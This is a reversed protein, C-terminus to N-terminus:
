DLLLVIGNETFDNFYRGTFHYWMNSYGGRANFPTPAAWTSGVNYGMAEEDFMIGFVNELEVANEPSTLTGAAQLYIPKAQIEDPNDIAQWFMVPEYDVLRLFENHFVGSRVESDIRNVAPKYLYVKQRRKPTHRSIEKGTVNIHYKQSRETMMDSLTEIEAAAWKIFGPWNEPQQITESTFTEGTVGNYRTVLHIVNGSDGAYKGTIFNAIIMRAISEKVQEIQDQANSTVMSLFRGFEGPGSFASNLQDRFITYHRSYVNAGYYNTQLINPKKVVYMDVSEGDVLELRDDEEWDSDAINLKRVINGWVQSGMELGRFKAEYPRISFVTRSLVQSIANLLPDYGAKLVTQGVTIFESTNVPAISSVGTVQEAIGNLVTALQNFTLDNVAM